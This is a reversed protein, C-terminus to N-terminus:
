KNQNPCDSSRSLNEKLDIEMNSFCSIDPFTLYMILFFLEKHVHVKLVLLNRWFYGILWQRKVYAVANFFFNLYLHDWSDTNGLEELSLGSM